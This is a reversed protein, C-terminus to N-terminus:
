WHGQVSLLLRCALQGNSFFVTSAGTHMSDTQRCTGTDTAQAQAQLRHRHRYGTQWARKGVKMYVSLIKLGYPDSDVLALVPIKLTLKLKRLFLRAILCSLPHLSCQLARAHASPPLSPGVAGCAGQM